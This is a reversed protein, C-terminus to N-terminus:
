LVAKLQYALLAHMLAHLIEKVTAHGCSSHELYASVSPIFCPTTWLTSGLSAM